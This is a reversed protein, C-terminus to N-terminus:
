KIIEEILRKTTNYTGTIQEIIFEWYAGDLFDPLQIDNKTCFVDFEEETECSTLTDFVTEPEGEYSCLWESLAHAKLKQETNM